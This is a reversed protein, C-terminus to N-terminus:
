RSQFAHFLAIVVFYAVAIGAAALLALVLLSGWVVTRGAPAEAVGMSPSAAGLTRELLALNRSNSKWAVDFLDGIVPV